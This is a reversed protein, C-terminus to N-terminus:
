TWIDIIDGKTAVDSKGQEMIQMYVSINEVVQTIPADRLKNLNDLKVYEERSLNCIAIEGDPRNKYLNNVFRKIATDIGCNNTVIVITGDNYKIAIGVIDKEDQM